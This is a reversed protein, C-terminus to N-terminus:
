ADREAAVPFVERAAAVVAGRTQPIGRVACQQVDKLFLGFMEVRDRDARVTRPQQGAAAVSVREALEHLVKEARRFGIFPDRDPEPAQVGFQFLGERMMRVVDERDGKRGVSFPEGAGAFIFGDADPAKLLPLLLNEPAEGERKEGFRWTPEFLWTESLIVAKGHLKGTSKM